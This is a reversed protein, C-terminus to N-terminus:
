KYYSAGFEFEKFQGENMLREMSSICERKDFDNWQMNNKKNETQSYIEYISKKIEKPDCGIVDYGNEKVYISNESQSPIHKDEFIEEFNLFRNEKKYFIRKPLMHDFKYPIRFHNQPHCDLWITPTGFTGAPFTGGSLSGVFFRSHSWVYIQLCEREYKSLKLKTTDLVNEQINLGYFSSKLKETFSKTGILITTLGLKTIEDIAFETTKLEPNRLSKSDRAMRLHMGVFNSPLFGYIKKFVNKAVEIQKSSPFIYTNGHLIEWYCNVLGSIHRGFLYKGINSIPYLEMNPELQLYNCNHYDLKLGIKKCKEILLNSYEINSIPTNTLTIDVRTKEKNILKLEVAKLLYTLESMHGIATFFSSEKYIGIKRNLKQDLKNKLYVIIQEFRKYDGYYTFPPPIIILLRKLDNEELEFKELYEFFLNIPFHPYRYYAILWSIKKILDFDIKNLSYNTIILALEGKDKALNLNRIENENLEILYKIDCFKLKKSIPIKPLKIIISSIFLKINPEIINVIEKTLLKILGIIKKSNNRILKGNSM